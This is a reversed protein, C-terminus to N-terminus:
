VRFLRFFLSREMLPSGGGNYGGWGVFGGRLFCLWREM